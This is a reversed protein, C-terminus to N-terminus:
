PKDGQKRPLVAFNHSDEGLKWKVIFNNLLDNFDELMPDRTETAIGRELRGKLCYKLEDVVRVLMNRSVITPIIIRVRM